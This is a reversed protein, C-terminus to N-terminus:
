ADIPVLDAVPRTARGARIPTCDVPFDQSFTVGEDILMGLFTDLQQMAGTPLDHLVPVAWEHQRCLELAPAMWADPREWERCIVNWVVCTYNHRELYEWVQRNLLHHGITARGFPRFLRQDGALCGLAGEARIVEAVADLPDPMLGLPTTHTYSHNGLQHGEDHAREAISRAERGALNSGVLFFTARVGRRALTDLVAPTIQPTPGNDFTLSIRM